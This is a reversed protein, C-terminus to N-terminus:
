KFLIKRRLNVTKKFSEMNPLNQINEITGGPCNVMKHGISKQGISKQISKHGISKQISKHGISKQISKHGISKQTLTHSISFVIILIIIIIGIFFIFKNNIRKM